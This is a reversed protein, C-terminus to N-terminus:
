RLAKRKDVISLIKDLKDDQEKLNRDQKSLRSEVKTELQELKEILIIFTFFRKIGYYALSICAGTFGLITIAESLTVDEGVVKM